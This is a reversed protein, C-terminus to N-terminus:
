VPLGYELALLIRRVREAGPRTRAVSAPTEGDLLVHPTSLFENADSRNEWVREALERIERLAQSERSPARRSGRLRSTLMSIRTRFGISEAKM